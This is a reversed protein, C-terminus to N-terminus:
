DGALVVRNRGASKALYLAADARDMLSHISEGHEDHTAAGISVKLDVRRDQWHINLARSAACLKEAILRTQEGAIGPLLVCFEEGGLRAIIDSRRFHTKLLSAYEQLVYDGAAHGYSDNISKFHDIDIYLLSFAQQNRAQMAHEHEALEYFIHRNYLGTLADHHAQIKLSANLRLAISLIISFYLAIVALMAAMASILRPLSYDFLSAGAYLEPPAPLFVFRYLAQAALLTTIGSLTLLSIYLCGLLGTGRVQPLDKRVTKAGIFLLLANFGSTTVIRLNTDPVVFWGFLQGLIVCLLIAWLVRPKVAHSFDLGLARVVLCLAGTLLMNGVMASFIPSISGRLGLLALGVGFMACSISWLPLSPFQRMYHAALRFALACSLLLVSNSLMLTRLDPVFSM